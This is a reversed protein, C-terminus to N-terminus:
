LESILAKHLCDRIADLDAFQEEAGAAIIKEVANNMNSALGQQVSGAVLWLRKGYLACYKQLSGIVKGHFSSQDIRGEGSVVLDCDVIRKQLHVLSSFWDFGSILKADFAAILGFATGGAAGAGKLARFTKGEKAEVVNAFHELALDLLQVQETSAGKQPGFVHAAGLEGLLPNEVDTACFFQRAGAFDRLASFDVAAVQLLSAGGRPVFKSGSSELFEAGCQALAAAGGDTSASGGLAVVVTALSTTELVHRIVEGLGATHANRADLEDNKLGAIGCASALEVIATDGLELWEAMRPEGLAGRVPLRRSKQGLALALSDITGDGGDAIPLIDV